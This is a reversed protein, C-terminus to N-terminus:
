SRTPIDAGLGQFFNLLNGGMERHASVLDAGGLASQPAEVVVPLVADPNGENQRAFTEYAMTAYAGLATAEINGNLMGRLDEASRRRDGETPYKEETGSVRAHYRIVPVGADVAQELLREPNLRWHSDQMHGRELHAGDVVLGGVQQVDFYEKITQGVNSKMTGDQNFLGYAVGVEPSMQVGAGRLGAKGFDYLMGYAVHDGFVVAGAEGGSAHRMLRMAQLSQHQPVLGGGAGIKLMDGRAVGQLMQPVGHGWSQHTSGILPRGDVVNQFRGTAMRGVLSSIFARSPTIEMGGDHIDMKELLDRHREVGGAVVTRKDANLNAFLLSVRAM